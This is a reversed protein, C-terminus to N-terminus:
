SCRVEFPQTSRRKSTSSFLFRKKTTEKILRRLALLHSSTSRNERFGNQNPRLVKDIVLRTRNLILRNFIKSASQALSIGRYNDPKTLDGKKPVPVLKLRGLKTPRNENYATNCFDLLSQRLEKIKWFEVPLSDTGPAKENKMQNVAKTLEEIDFDGKRIDELKDFVKM